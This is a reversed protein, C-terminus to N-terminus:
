YNILFGSFTVYRENESSIATGDYSNTQVWVREAASCQAVVTVMGQDVHGDHSKVSLLRQSEKMIDASFSSSSSCLSAAFVYLGDVPCIFQSSSQQYGFSENNLVADFLVQQYATYTRDATAYATFGIANPSPESFM